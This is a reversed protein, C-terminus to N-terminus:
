TRGWIIEKDQLQLVYDLGLDGSVFRDQDQKTYRRENKHELKVLRNEANVTIQSTEKGELIQVTDTQGKFLIEPDAVLPFPENELIIINDVSVTDDTLSGFARILIWPNTVTPTFFLKHLGLIRDAAVDNLIDSAGQTSGIQIQPGQDGFDKVEYTLSYQKSTDLGSFQQDARGDGTTGDTVNIYGLSNWSISGDGSSSDTWGSIDSDFFGNAVFNDLIPNKIVGMWLTIERGQRMDQLASSILSSPIGSLTLSIGRAALELTEDISTVSGFQGVGLFTEGNFSLDGIGTWVRVAGGDTLIEAILILQLEARQVATIMDTTLGRSM